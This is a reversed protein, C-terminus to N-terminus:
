VRWATGQVAMHGCRLLSSSKTFLNPAFALLAEAAWDFAFNASFSRASITSIGAAADLSPPPSALFTHALPTHPLESLKHVSAKGCPSANTDLLPSVDFLLRAQTCIIGHGAFTSLHHAFSTTKAKTCSHSQTLEMVVAASCCNVEKCSM